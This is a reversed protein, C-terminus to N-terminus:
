MPTLQNTAKTPVPHSFTKAPLRPPPLFSPLSARSPAKWGDGRRSIFNSQSGDPGKVVVVVRRGRWRWALAYANPPSARMMIQTHMVICESGLDAGEKVSSGMVAAQRHHERTLGFKRWGTGGNTTFHSFWYSFFMFALTLRHAIFVSDDRFRMESSNSHVQIKPQIRCDWLKWEEVSPKLVVVRISLEHPMYNKKGEEDEERARFIQAPSNVHFNIDVLSTWRPVQVQVPQVTHLRSSHTLPLPSFTSRPPWPPHVAPTSSSM